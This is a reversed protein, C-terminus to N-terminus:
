YQNRKCLVCDNYRFIIKLLPFIGTNFFPNKIKHKKTIKNNLSISCFTVKYIHFYIKPHPVSSHILSLHIFTQVRRILILCFPLYLDDSSTPPYVLFCCQGNLPLSSKFFLKQFFMWTQSPPPKTHHSFEYKWLM